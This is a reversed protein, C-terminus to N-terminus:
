NEGESSFKKVKLQESLNLMIADRTSRDATRAIESFKYGFEERGNAFNEIADACYEELEEGFDHSGGLNSKVAPPAIEVMRVHTDQLSYRMAMTYSHIAAKTAGYVPGATLPVFALGSSVNCIWCKEGSKKQLFFPIFLTCLHIPGNLNIEIEAAREHWPATDEAPAIRRQIGANNVLVNCDPHETRVWDFLAQRDSANGADSVKYVIRGSEFAAAADRLVSERRGTILVKPAGRKLFERVLGFGIGSGGGTVLPVLKTMDIREDSM